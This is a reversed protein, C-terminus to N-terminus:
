LLTLTIKFWFCFALHLCSQRNAVMKPSRDGQCSYYSTSMKRTCMIVMSGMKKIRFYGNKKCANSELNKEQQLATSFNSAHTKWILFTMQFTNIHLYTKIIELFSKPCRKLNTKWLFIDIMTLQIWNYEIDKYESPRINRILYLSVM